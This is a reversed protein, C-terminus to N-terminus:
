FKLFHFIECFIILHRQFVFFYYKSFNKIGFISFQSQSILRFHGFLEFNFIKFCLLIIM